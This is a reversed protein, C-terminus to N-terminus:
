ARNHLQALYDNRDLVTPAGNCEVVVKNFNSRAVSGYDHGARSSLIGWYVLPEDGVNVTRHATHGPVYVISNAALPAAVCERGAEDQLLMLGRGRLGVYVEAAPRWAHFHGKTLFYEDGIKGPLLVGLVYDLDGDDADRGQTEVQSTYYLVPDDHQLTQQVAAVDAFSDALDSLHRITKSCGEIEGSLPDYHLHLSPYPM